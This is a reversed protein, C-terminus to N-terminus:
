HGNVVKCGATAMTHDMPHFKTSNKPLIFQTSKLCNTILIRIRARRQKRRLYLTCIPENLDLRGAPRGTSGSICVSLACRQTNALSLDLMLQFFFKGGKKSRTHARLNLMFDAPYLLDDRQGIHVHVIYM